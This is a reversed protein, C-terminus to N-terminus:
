VVEELQYIEVKKENDWICIQGNAKGYALAIDRNSLNVSLDLYVIDESVWTGIFHNPKCLHESNRLIFVNVQWEAFDLINIKQEKGKLSVM